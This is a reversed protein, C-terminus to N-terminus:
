RAVGGSRIGATLHSDFFATVRGVYERPATRYAELHGAGPVIWLKGDSEEIEGSMSGAAKALLRAHDVPVVRDEEGHIILVPSESMALSRAPSVENIDVGFLMRAMAGMGPNAVILAKGVGSQARKIMLWLDAFASDAVVAAANGPASCVMLAVAAGMSHGLIGIREREVGRDALYDLAGLLDFREYFGASNKSGESHGSSRFDFLLVGFNSDHLDRALGLLGAAPDASHSGFGHALAIWRQALADNMDTCGPPPILWGSLTIQGDHSPFRVAEYPLGVTAPTEESRLRASRMLGRAMLSSVGAYAVAVAGAAYLTRDLWNM